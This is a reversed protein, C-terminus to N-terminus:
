DRPSPSTYLLCYKNGTLSGVQTDFGFNSTSSPKYDFMNSKRKYLDTNFSFDEGGLISM